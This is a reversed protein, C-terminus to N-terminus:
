SSKAQESGLARDAILEVHYVLVPLRTHVPLRGFEFVERLLQDFSTV